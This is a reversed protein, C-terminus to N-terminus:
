KRLKRRDRFLKEFRKARNDQQAKGETAAVQQAAKPISQGTAELIRMEDLASLDNSWPVRLGPRGNKGKAPELVAILDAIDRPPKPGLEAAVYFAQFRARQKLDPSTMGSRLNSWNRAFTPDIKIGQGTPKTQYFKRFREREAEYNGSIKLQDIERLAARMAETEAIRSEALGGQHLQFILEEELELEEYCGIYYDKRTLMENVGLHKM